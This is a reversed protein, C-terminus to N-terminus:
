ALMLDPALTKWFRAAHERLPSWLESSMSPDDVLIAEAERRALDLTRTDFWGPGQILSPSSWAWDLDRLLRTRDFLPRDAPTESM